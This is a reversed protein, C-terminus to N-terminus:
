RPPESTTERTQAHLAPAACVAITGLLGALWKSMTRQTDEERAVKAVTKTKTLVVTQIGAARDPHRHHEVGAHVDERERAPRVDDAYRRVRQLGGRHGHAQRR